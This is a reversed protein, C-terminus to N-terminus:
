ASDRRPEDGHIARILMDRLATRDLPRPNTPPDALVEDVVPDIDAESVGLDALTAVQGLHHALAQLGPERWRGLMRLGSELAESARENYALVYPLVVMHTPAHPLDLRGGLVHCIRHHLGMRVTGLVTGALWAGYLLGARAFDADAGPDSLLMLNSVLARIAEPAILQTTIPDGDPAYLGEVAHAIANFASPVAVDLPLDRSLEPEYIVTRPLVRPDRGTRKHGAETLGYIPSMESGAYTTPIAIIPITSELAIAKALGIASGGGIAVAGDADREAALARAERALEIPVHAVARDFVGVSLSGLRDSLDAAIARQSPSCLILSRSVGLREVERELHILSGGGFVVRTPNAEYVFRTEAM